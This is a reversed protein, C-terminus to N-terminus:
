SSEAAKVFQDRENQVFDAEKDLQEALADIATNLLTRLGEGFQQGADGLLAGDDVEKSVTSIEHRVDLLANSAKRMLNIMEDVKPVDMHIIDTM